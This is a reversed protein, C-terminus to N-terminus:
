DEVAIMEETLGGTPASAAREDFFDKIRSAGPVNTVQIMERSSPKRFELDGGRQLLAQKLPNENVFSIRQQILPITEDKQFGMLRKPTITAPLQGRDGTYNMFLYAHIQGMTMLLLTGFGLMLSNGITPDPQLHSIFWGMLSVADGAVPIGLIADFVGIYWAMAIVAIICLVIITMSVFVMWTVPLTLVLLVFVVTGIEIWGIATKPIISVISQFGEAFQSLGKLIAHWIGSMFGDGPEGPKPVVDSQLFLILASTHSVTTIPWLFITDHHGAFKVTDEEFTPYSRPGVFFFKLVIWVLWFPLLIVNWFIWGLAALVKDM